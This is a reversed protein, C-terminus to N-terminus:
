QIRGTVMENKLFSFVYLASEFYLGCESDCLKAYTRSTYLEDLAKSMDWSYEKILMMALETTLCEIQFRIDDNM